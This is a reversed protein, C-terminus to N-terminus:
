GASSGAWLPAFTDLKYNQLHHEAVTVTKGKPSFRWARLGAALAGAVDIDERDGVHVIDGPPLGLAGVLAEFPLAHPKLAGCAEASVYAAWPLDALGLHELKERADYDSLVALKLGRTHAAELAGRVGRFARIRETLAAPLLSRLSQLRAEAEDMSLEFSPAVLEAERRHLAALDAFPGEHRIKERAAVMAVLLGRDTRLRWAVTLRRVRYLTGDVDLSIARALALDSM